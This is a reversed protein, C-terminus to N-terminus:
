NKKKCIGFILSGLLIEAQPETLQHQEIALAFQRPSIKGKKARSILDTVFIDFEDNAAAVPQIQPLLHAIRNNQM